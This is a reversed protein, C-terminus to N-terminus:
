GPFPFSASHRGKPIALGGLTNNSNELFSQLRAGHSSGLGLAAHGLLPAHRTGSCFKARLTAATGAEQYSGKVCGEIHKRRLAFINAGGAEWTLIEEGVAANFMQGQAQLGRQCRDM